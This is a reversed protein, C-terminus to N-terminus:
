KQRDRDCFYLLWITAWVASLLSGLLIGIRDQAIRDAGSQEFALGGIFLSMTFGVGCLVAIGYMHSWSVNKPMSGLNFKIGLWVALMVGVQKGVFLGLIIGLPINQFIDSFSLQSFSLGANTFAFLPLVILGVPLDLDHELERLPQLKQSEWNTGQIPIFLALIVGALTAHVGSQLLSGWMVVGVMLYASKSVVEAKNLLWLLVICVSSILLAGLSLTETYFLAIVIIAGLDDFIALSVLFVRLSKPVRDGLLVLIGLAFAIDTATPIAWGQISVDDQINIVAYILAPVIMGGLAALAPLMIKKPSNLEGLIAERKLELGVLLFFMAMLGDNVWLFIPKSLAFDEIAVTLKLNILVEYFHQWPSNAVILALITAAILMLGSAAEHKVLRRILEFM